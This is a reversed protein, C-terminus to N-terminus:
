HTIQTGAVGSILDSADALAGIAARRETVSVFRRAAEVKSVTPEGDVILVFLDVDLRRALLAAAQDEDTPGDVYRMAGAHDLTLPTCRVACIVLVGANILTRLSRLSVIGNPRHTIAGALGVVIGTPVMVLDRDPLVNRLALELMKGAAGDPHSLVLEHEDALSALTQADAEIEHQRAPIGDGRGASVRNGIAALVRMTLPQRIQRRRGDPLLWMSHNPM